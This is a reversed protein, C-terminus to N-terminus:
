QIKARKFQPQLLQMRSLEVSDQLHVNSDHLIKEVNDSPDKLTEVVVNFTWDTGLRMANDNFDTLWVRSRELMDLSEMFTANVGQEDQYIILGGPPVLVPMCITKPTSSLQTNANFGFRNGTFTTNLNICQTGMLPKNPALIYYNTTLVTAIPVGYGPDATTSGIYTTGPLFGLVTAASGTATFRLAINQTSDKSTFIYTGTANHFSANIGMYATIFDCIEQTTPTGLPLQALQFVSTGDVYNTCVQIGNTGTGDLNYPLVYPSDYTIAVQSVYVKYRAGDQHPQDIALNVNFDSITGSNRNASGCFIVTKNSVVSM